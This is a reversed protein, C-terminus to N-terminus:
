REDPESRSRLRTVRGPALRRGRADFPHFSVLPEAARVASLDATRRPEPHVPVGRDGPIAALTLILLWLSARNLCRM